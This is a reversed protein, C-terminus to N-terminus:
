RVLRLGLGELPPLRPPPLLLGDGGEEERRLLISRLGGEAEGEEDPGEVGVTGEIVLLAWMSRRSEELLPWWIICRMPQRPAPSPEESPPMTSGTDPPSTRSLCSWYLPTPSPVSGKSAKLFCFDPDKM